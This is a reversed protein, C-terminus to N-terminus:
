TESGWSETLIDASAADELEGREDIGTRATRGFRSLADSLASVNEAGSALAAPYDLLSPQGAVTRAAGEAM